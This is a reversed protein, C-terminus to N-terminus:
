QSAKQLLGTKQQGTNQTRILSEKYISRNHLRERDNIARQAVNNVHTKIIEMVYSYNAPNDDIGNTNHTEAMLDTVSHFINQMRTVYRHDDYNTHSHTKSTGVVVISKLKAIFSISCLPTMTQRIEGDATREMGLLTLYLEANVDGIDTLWRTNNQEEQKMSFFVQDDSPQMSANRAQHEVQFNRDRNEAEIQRKEEPNGGGLWGPIEISM